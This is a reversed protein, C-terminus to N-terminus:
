LFPTIKGLFSGLFPRCLHGQGLSSGPLRLALLGALRMGWLSPNIKELVEALGAWPPLARLQQNKRGLGWLEAPSPHAWVREEKDGLAPFTLFCVGPRGGLDEGGGLSQGRLM